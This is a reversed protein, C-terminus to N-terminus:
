PEIRRHVYYNCPPERKYLTGGGCQCAIEGFISFHEIADRRGEYNPVYM